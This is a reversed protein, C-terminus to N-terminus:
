PTPEFSHLFALRQAENEIHEALRQLFAQRLPTTRAARSVVIRAIPGILVALRREAMESFAPDIGPELAHTPERILTVVTPESVPAPAATPPNLRQFLSQSASAFQERGRESPIHPLLAACVAEFDQSANLSKRVLFRALPGIQHSLLSELEPMVALKWPTLTELPETAVTATTPPTHVGLSQNPRMLVTRDDDIEANIWTGTTTSGILAQLDDLFAQASPYRESPRKALARAIVSDLAPDLALNLSSPAVPTQNLIQQMVMTASGSFPREGTLLQYLVIGASFVDSRGDILEGCFQEPSMYSPTGIMSGTQTLTSSDLRAVGFDTVKVQDDATILLNAPKIDRHVVGKSHAYELALLLQRMWGLSHSLERPTQAALVTNLPTGEVFEMAIYASGEDEGYDYVAVINPHMLRGAAQAENKFRSVLEAHHSDGFLEKRITKLAVTRAIHPDFAKYVTGMAGKGLVSDIRYKGLQELM